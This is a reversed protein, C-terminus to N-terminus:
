RRRWAHFYRLIGKLRSDFEWGERFTVFVHNLQREGLGYLHAAVTDLEHSMDMEADAAM